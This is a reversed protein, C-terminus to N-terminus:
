VLARWDNKEIPEMGSDHDDCGFLVLRTATLQEDGQRWPVQRSWVACLLFQCTQWVFGGFALKATWTGTRGEVWVANEMRGCHNM